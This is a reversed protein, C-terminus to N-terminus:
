LDTETKDKEDERKTENKEMQKRKEAEMKKELIRQIRRQTVNIAETSGDGLVM